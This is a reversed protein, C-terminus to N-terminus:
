LPAVLIRMSALTGRCASDAWEFWIPGVCIDRATPDLRLGQMTPGPQLYKVRKQYLMPVHAAYAYQTTSAFTQM